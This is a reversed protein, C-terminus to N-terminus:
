IRRAAMVLIVGRAEDLHNRLQAFSIECEISQGRRNHGTLTVPDQKNGSLAERLPDRLEGVPLGINLNLFHEGNVENERLGWLETAANSWATVRLQPDVVVVAQEISWLISGLFANAHLAEDTRDRLEDNM